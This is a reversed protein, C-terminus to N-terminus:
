GEDVAVQEQVLDEDLGRVPNSTRWTRLRLIGERVLELHHDTLGLGGRVLAGDGLHFAEDISGSQIAEGVLELHHLDVSPLSRIVRIRSAERPVFVLVGGGLAHVQMETELLTLSTYWSAAFVAPVVGPRAYGCLFSNSAVAGADNLLLLPREFFTPILVDPVKVDPVVYWPERVRCKYRSSISNAEGLAVYAKEGDTLALPSHPLFLNSLAGPKFRGTLLGQKSVRRASTLSPVLSARPIHYDKVVQDTPHFYRKDGAVYGIHFDVKEKAEVTLSRLMPLLLRLEPPLLAEVFPRHGQAIASIPISAATQAHEKLFASVTDYVDFRVQDTSGGYGDAFLIVVSQLISPFLREQVRVIRLSGFRRGLLPWLPRAYRVYTAEHPLVLALRGDDRLFRLSHLVFPMWLSGAPEMPSELVSNAIDLAREALGPDVHRLRVYPPNGILVDVPFPALSLFDTCHARELTEGHLSATRQFTEREIEAGHVAVEHWSRARKLDRLARLFVGEGFSPELVVENGRRLAWGAM